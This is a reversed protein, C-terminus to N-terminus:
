RPSCGSQHHVRMRLARRDQVRYCSTRRPNLDASRRRWLRGFGSTVDAGIADALLDSRRGNGDAPRALAKPM